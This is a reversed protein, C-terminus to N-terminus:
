ALKTPVELEEPDPITPRLKSVFSTLEWTFNYLYMICIHDDSCKPVDHKLRGDDYALLARNSHYPYGGAFTSMSLGLIVLMLDVTIM